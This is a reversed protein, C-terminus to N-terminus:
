YKLHNEMFKGILYTNTLRGAQRGAKGERGEKRRERAKRAKGEKRGEQSV